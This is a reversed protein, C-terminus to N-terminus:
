CSPAEAPQGRCVHVLVALREPSRLLGDLYIEIKLISFNGSVQDIFRGGAVQDPIRTPVRYILKVDESVRLGGRFM